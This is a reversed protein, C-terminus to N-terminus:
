LVSSSEGTGITILAAIDQRIDSLIDLAMASGIAASKSDGNEMSRQVAIILFDLRELKEEIDSLRERDM